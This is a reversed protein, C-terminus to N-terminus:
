RRYYEKRLIQGTEDDICIIANGGLNPSHTTIQWMLPGSGFIGTKRIDADIRELWPWGEAEAVQRAREIAEEQTMRPKRTM